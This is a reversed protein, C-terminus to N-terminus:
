RALHGLKAKQHNGNGNRESGRRLMDRFYGRTLVHYRTNVFSPKQGKPRSMFVSASVTPWIAARMADDGPSTAGSVRCSRLQVAMPSKFGSPLRWSPVAPMPAVTPCLQDLGRDQIDQGAGELDVDGAQL